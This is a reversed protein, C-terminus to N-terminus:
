SHKPQRRLKDVYAKKGERTSMSMAAMYKRDAASFERAKLRASEQALDERQQALEPDDGFPALQEAVINLANAAGDLDGQDALRIAEERATATAFRLFSREVVPEPHDAGDLNAHVQQTIVRHEIGIALVVDAICRVEAVPVVGLTDVDDVHIILGLALPSTAYLDGLSASWGGDATPTVPYRQLFTVGAARSHLLRVEVVVNQAALAVLGEIEGEFVGTMQDDREVYWYNGRGERGLAQLLDENFGVGFGICTTSV